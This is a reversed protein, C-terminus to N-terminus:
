EADKSFQLEVVCTGDNLHKIMNFVKNVYGSVVFEYESGNPLPTVFTMETTNEPIFYKEIEETSLQENVTFSIVWYNKEGGKASRETPADANFTKEVNKLKLYM